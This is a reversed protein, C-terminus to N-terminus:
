VRCHDDVIWLELKELEQKRGYFVRVDPASSWEENPAYNYRESGDKHFFKGESPVNIFSSDSYSLYGASKLLLTRKESDLNLADALAKVTEISPATREGRTLLSIYGASLGARIALDKKSIQQEERFKDLLRTFNDM